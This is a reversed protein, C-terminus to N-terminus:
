EGLRRYGDRVPQAWAGSVSVRVKKQRGSRVLRAAISLFGSRGRKAELYKQPVIFRVFLAWLNDGRPLLRAALEAKARFKAWFGGFDRHNKLEDFANKTDARQLMARKLGAHNDRVALRVRHM